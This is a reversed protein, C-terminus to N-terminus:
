DSCSAAASAAAQVLPRVMASALQWEIERRLQAASRERTEPDVPGAALGARLSALSMPSRRPPSATELRRIIDRARADAALAHVDDVWDPEGAARAAAAVCRRALRPEAAQRLASPFTGLVDFVDTQRRTWPMRVSASLARAVVERVLPQGNAGSQLQAVTTAPVRTTAAVVSLAADVHAPEPATVNGLADGGEQV